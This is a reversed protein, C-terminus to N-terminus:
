LWRKRVAVRIGRQSFCAYCWRRDLVWTDGCEPCASAWGRRLEEIAIRCREESDIAAQHANCPPIHEHHWGGCTQCQYESGVQNEDADFYLRFGHNPRGEHDAYEIFTVADHEWPYMMRELAALAERREPTSEDAM